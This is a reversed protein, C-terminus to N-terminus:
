PIFFFFFFILVILKYSFGFLSNKLFEVQGQCYPVSEVYFPWIRVNYWIGEELGVYVHRTDSLWFRFHTFWREAMKPDYVFMLM